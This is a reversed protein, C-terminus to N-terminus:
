KIGSHGFGGSGRFTDTLEQSEKLSVHEYRAIVAQAIRMGRDIIFDEEGFNILVIKIEGRYDSDITGPSNLVTIGNKYALGSRPRIQMELGEPLAFKLGTPILCRQFPKLTVPEVNASFLDMGASHPTAFQPLPLDETGALRMIEIISTNM